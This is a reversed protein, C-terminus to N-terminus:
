FLIIIVKRIQMLSKHSIKAGQTRQNGWINNRARIRILDRLTQNFQEEQLNSVQAKLGMEALLIQPKLLDVVEEEGM